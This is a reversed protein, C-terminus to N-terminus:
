LGGEKLLRYWIRRTAMLDTGEPLVNKPM